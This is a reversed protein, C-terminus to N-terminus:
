IDQHEEDLMAANGYSITPNFSQRRQQQSRDQQPAANSPGNNDGKSRHRPSQSRHDGPYPQRDRSRSRPTDRHNADNRDRSPTRRYDNRSNNRSDYHRSRNDFTRAQSRHVYAHRLRAELSPFTIKCDECRASACDRTLHDRLKCNKCHAGYTTRFPAVSHPDHTSMAANILPVAASVTPLTTVSFPTTAPVVAAVPTEDTRLVFTKLQEFMTDYTAENTVWTTHLSTRAPDSSNHVHRLLANKMHLKDITHYCINGAADTTPNGNADYIPYMSIQNIYHNIAHYIDALSSNSPLSDFQHRAQSLADSINPHYNRELAQWMARFKPYNDLAFPNETPSQYTILLKHVDDQISNYVATSITSQILGKAIISNEDLQNKAKKFDEAVDKEDYERRRRQHASENPPEIALASRRNNSTVLSKTAQSHVLLSESVKKGNLELIFQQKYTPFM